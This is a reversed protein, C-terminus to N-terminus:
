FTQKKKYFVTSCIRIVDPGSLRIIGIAGVGQPTALAIINEQNNHM